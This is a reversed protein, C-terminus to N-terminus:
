GKRRRRHAKARIKDGCRRTCWRGSLNKTFDFYARGCQPHDCLKLAQWKGECSAAHVLGLLTGLADDFDRSILELRSTCDRDFRVQARAGVAAEDLRRLASQDLSGGGHAALQARLGGRAARARDLDAASLELGAPLLANRSLWAALDRPTALEDSGARVFSGSGGGSM